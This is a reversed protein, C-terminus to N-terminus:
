ASFLQVEARLKQLGLRMRGKVTGLPLSLETAIETSSLEGFYALAIVERQADPLRSLVGRLQAAQDREVATGATDSRARLRDEIGEEEARRSDHRHHRRVSDLSRNRVTGMVWSIVTGQEPCFSARSRWISLFAEQLADEARADDRAISRALRYARLGFRDYFACFAEADDAQVRLMLAADDLDAFRLSGTSM